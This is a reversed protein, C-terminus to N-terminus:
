RRRGEGTVFVRVFGSTLERGEPSVIAEYEFATRGWPGRFRLDIWTVRRNGGGAPECRAVPFRAFRLWRRVDPFSKAAAVAFDDERNAFIRPRAQRPPPYYDPLSGIVSWGSRPAPPKSVMRAFPGIDVYEVAISDGSDAFLAWRFPSFPQPLAACSAPAPAPVLGRALRLARAHQLACFGIYAFLLLAGAASIARANRRRFAFALVLFVVLIGTFFPDLIFVWDLSYRKWSLPSFFMTGYSTIWDSLIHSVIGLLAFGWLAAFRARRAFIKAVGAMAAAFLPAMLFSHTVGRHYEIYSLTTGLTFPLSGPMFFADCDPFMAAVTAIAVAARVKEKAAARGLLAGALGHTLTDV